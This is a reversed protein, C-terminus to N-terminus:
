QICRCCGKKPTALNTKPLAKLITYILHNFHDQSANNARNLGNKRKQPLVKANTIHTTKYASRVTELTYNFVYKKTNNGTNNKAYFYAANEIMKGNDLPNNKTNNTGPTEAAHNGTTHTKLPEAAHTRLTEAAATKFTRIAYSKLTKNTLIEFTEAAHNRTTHTKLPEAAYTKLIKKVHNKTHKAPNKTLNKRYM